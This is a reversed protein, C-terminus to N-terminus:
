AYRPRGRRAMARAALRDLWVASRLALWGAGLLLVWFRGRPGLVAALVDSGYGLLPQHVLYFGYSAAALRRVLTGRGARAAVPLALLVVFAAVCLAVLRVHVLSALGRTPLLAVLACAGLLAAAPAPALSPSRADDEPGLVSALGVGIAFEPLRYPLNYYSMYNVLAVASHPRARAMADLLLWSGWSVTCVAAVAPWPGAARQFRLLLPFALYLQALLGLWWYAPVVAFFDTPSLTHLFLGHTVVSAVSPARGDGIRLLAALAAVVVWLGLALYYAPVIRLFRRRLFTGWGLLPRRAPGVHPWALVLGTIVDFVVVGLYGHRLALSASPSVVGDPVVSWLHFVFIAGMALVRAVDVQPLTATRGDSARTPM